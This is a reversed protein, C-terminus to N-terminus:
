RYPERMWYPTVGSAAYPNPPAATPQSTMASGVGMRAASGALSSGARAAGGLFQGGIEPKSITSAMTARPTALNDRLLSYNQSPPQYKIQIDRGPGPNFFGSGMGKFMADSGLKVVGSAVGGAAGMAAGKMPDDPNKAAGMGASILSDGGVKMLSQGLGGETAVAGKGILDTAASGVQGSTSLAGTPAGAAAQITGTNTAIGLSEGLTGLAPGVASGAFGSLAGTGAAKLGGLLHEGPNEWPYNGSVLSSIDHALLGTGAGLVGAGIGTAIAGSAGVATGISTAIGALTSFIPSM